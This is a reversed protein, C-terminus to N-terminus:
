GSQVILIGDTSVTIPIPDGIEGLFHGEPTFARWAMLVWQQDPQQILKGAYHSGIKDGLLFQDTLYRYPGALSESALYHTGTVLSDGIRQKRANSYQGAGVCFLLYYKEGIHVVQPVEMHGFEGAQTVPPLVTWNLLDRSRAHAIVGRADPSEDKVRATIFAHFEGTVSEKVVYPDRWANDHWASLDLTEYWQPDLPILPNAPHKEWRILDQSTAVGIRQVLGKESLRSGTYFMYWLSEHRIISGTWTTYSDFPEAIGTQSSPFLADPLITWDRLDQSVAHGISVHWHRLKEEGLSRDAQLYFIHYDSGEQAFWFDWVWKDDLRLGM